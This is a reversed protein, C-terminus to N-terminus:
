KVSIIWCCLIAIGPRKILILEYKQVYSHTSVQSTGNIWIEGLICHFYVIYPYILLIKFQKTKKNATLGEM